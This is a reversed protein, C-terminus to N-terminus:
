RLGGGGGILSSAHGLVGATKAILSIMGSPMIGFWLLLVVLVALAVGSALLPPRPGRAREKSDGELRPLYMTVIVRLYYFLGLASNAILLIVLFWLSSRVAAAAVAFKGIFGATLPIGALSLLGMTLVGALWPRRWFLGRYDKLSEAEGEWSSLVTVVGLAAIITLVYAFVYFAAAEGGVRSGALVAVLLYGFQSISSYALIRKVNNQLLALINGVFMSAGSIVTFGLVLSHYRSLDLVIFLRFLVAFTGSKSVSSILATVPAPAGHYVDPTWVHFPVFSLKFGLGVILLALGLFFVPTNAGGTAAAAGAEAFDLSGTEFYILAIGFLLFASAASALVLYKIAAELVSKKSLPFAILAYLSVSLIELGLFLAAFNGSATLVAAGLAALFALIFFEERHGPLRAFYGYALLFVLVLAGFLLGMYYLAFGDIILLSGVIRPVARGVRFLSLFAASAAMLSFASVLVYNRKWALFLLILVASGAIIWLPALAMLDASSM